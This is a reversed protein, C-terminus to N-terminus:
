RLFKPVLVVYTGFVVGFNVNEQILRDGLEDPTRAGAATVIKASKLYPMGRPHEVLLGLAYPVAHFIEPQTAEIASMLNDATMPLSASPLNATKRMYMAQLTTSLGYMHYLPLAGFNNMGAGQVPHTLVNKHSLFVPKPLGTSGSSHMILGIEDTESDPDFQRVFPSENSLFARGYRARNPAVVTKLSREQSVAEITAAIQPTEGHAIINCNTQKLLNIIAM